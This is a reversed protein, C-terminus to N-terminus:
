SVFLIPLLFDQKDFQSQKSIHGLGPQIGTNKPVVQLSATVLWGTTSLFHHFVLQMSVSDGLPFRYVGNVLLYWYKNLLFCCFDRFPLNWSFTCVPIILVSWVTVVLLTFYIHLRHSSKLVPKKGFIGPHFSLFIGGLLCLTPSNSPFYHLKLEFDPSGFGSFNLIRVRRVILGM